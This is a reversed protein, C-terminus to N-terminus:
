LLPPVSAFTDHLPRGVVALSMVAIRARLKASQIWQLGHRSEGVVIKNPYDTIMTKYLTISTLKDGTAAADSKAAKKALFTGLRLIWISRM